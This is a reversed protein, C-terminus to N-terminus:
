KGAAKEEEMEQRKGDEYAAWLLPATVITSVVLGFIFISAETM